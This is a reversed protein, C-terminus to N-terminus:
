ILSNASFGEAFVNPLIHIALDGLSQALLQSVGQIRQQLFNFRQVLADRFVITTDLLDGLFDV